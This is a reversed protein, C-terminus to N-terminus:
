RIRTASVNESPVDIEDPVFTAPDYWITFPLRGGFVIAVDGDPVGAPHPAPTAQAAVDLLVSGPRTPAIATSPADNWAAM